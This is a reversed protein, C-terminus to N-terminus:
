RELPVQQTWRWWRSFRLDRLFYDVTYSPTGLLKRVPLRSRSSCITCIEAVLHLQMAIKHTLRTLEAVM